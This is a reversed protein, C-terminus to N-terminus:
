ALGRAAVTRMAESLEDVLTAAMSRFVAIEYAEPALRIVIAPMQNITSRACHGVGLGSDRLDLPTLRALVARADAGTLHVWAWGDSQDSLAVVGALDARLAGPLAVGILFALERGAWVLRARGAAQVRGPAPFRLGLAALAPNADAGPYPAISTVPGPDLAEIRARGFILPLGHLAPNATLDAVCGGGKPIM